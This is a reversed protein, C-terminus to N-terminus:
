EIEGKDKLAKIGHAITIFRKHNTHYWHNLTGRKTGSHDAVYQLSKLGLAKVEKAASM